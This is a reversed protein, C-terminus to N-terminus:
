PHKCLVNVSDSTCYVIVNASSDQQAAWHIFHWAGFFLIGIVILIATGVFWYGILDGLHFESKYQERGIHIGRLLDKNQVM